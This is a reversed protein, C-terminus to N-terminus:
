RSLLRIFSLTRLLRFLSFVLFGVIANPELGYYITMLVVFEITHVAILPRVVGGLLLQQRIAINAINILTFAAGFGYLAMTVDVLQSLTLYLTWMTGLCALGAIAIWWAVRAVQHRGDTLEKQFFINNGTILRACFAQLTLIKAILLLESEALYFGGWFLFGTIIASNLTAALTLELGNSIVSLAGREKVAEPEPKCALVRSQRILTFALVVIEALIAGQLGGAVLGLFFGCILLTSHQNLLAFAKNRGLTKQIYSTNTDLFMECFKAAAVLLLVTLLPNGFYLILVLGLAITGFLAMFGTLARFDRFSEIAGFTLIRGRMGAFIFFTNTLGLCIAYRGFYDPADSQILQWLILVVIKAAIILSYLNARFATKILKNM